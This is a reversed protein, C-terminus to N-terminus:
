PGLVLYWAAGSAINGAVARFVHHKGTLRPMEFRDVLRGDPTILSGGGEVEIFATGSAGDFPELILEMGMSQLGASFPNPLKVTFDASLASLYFWSGHDAAELTMDRGLTGGAKWKPNQPTLRRWKSDIWVGGFLSRVGTYVYQEQAGSDYVQDGPATTQFTWGNKTLLALEGEHGALAGSPNRGVLIQAGLQLGQVTSRVGVVPFSTVTDGQIGNGTTTRSPSSQQATESCPTSTLGTASLNTPILFILLAITSLQTRM